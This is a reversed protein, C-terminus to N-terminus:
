ALPHAAPSSQLAIIKSLLKEIEQDDDTNAKVQFQQQQDCLPQQYTLQHALRELSFNSANSRTNIGRVLRAKLLKEECVCSVITIQINLQEALNLYNQRFHQKLFTGDVVVSYGMKLINQALTLLHQSLRANIEPSHLDLKKGKKLLEKHLRERQVQSSIRIAPINKIIKRSVYSKGSGSLGHMLILTPKSSRQYHQTLRLYKVFSQHNASPGLTAVKARVMSRFSKYFNLIQLCQYDGSLELYRNLTINAWSYKGNAELDMLLFALDSCTDIWRFQLNFEICDFLRLKNEFLTVNGLHLDGHCERIFGLKRRERFTAELAMYQETTQTYLKTLHELDAEDTCFDLTHLYNDSVLQWINSPEGWPSNSAVTPLQQHFKALQEALQEIWPAEFKNQQLLKDLGSEPDFQRMRVAYEIVTYSQPNLSLPQQAKEPETILLTASISPLNESGSITVVAQYIDPALRQNLRLEEECYYQRKDLTSFDLFGFNLEKKIKYVYEGTLLVWSVQTEIVRIPITVPHPYCDPQLLSNILSPLM